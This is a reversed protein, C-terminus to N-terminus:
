TAMQDRQVERRKLIELFGFGWVFLFDEEGFYVKSYLSKSDDLFIDM